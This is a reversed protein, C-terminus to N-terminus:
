FSEYLLRKIQKAMANSLPFPVGNGVLRFGHWKAKHFTMWDPYGMLRAGERVSIVRHYEYHIPRVATHSGKNERTGARLTPSLREPHLRPRRSVPEQTGPELTKLREIVHEAHTTRNSCDVSYPNWSARPLSFDRNEILEYRMRLAFDSETRTLEKASFEHEELLHPMTDIDPLDQLAERATPTRNETGNGDWSHTPEPYHFTQKLQKNIGVIFMRERDQPTGFSAANLVQPAPINYIEEAKELIHLLVPGVKKGKYEGATPANDYDNCIKVMTQHLLKSDLLLTRLQQFHERSDSEELLRYKLLYEFVSAIAITGIENRCQELIKHTLQKDNYTHGIAKSILSKLEGYSSIIVKKLELPAPLTKTLHENVNSKFDNIINSILRKRSQRDRKAVAKPVPPLKDVILSAPEGNSKALRKIHISFKPLIGSTALGPVNEMVFFEPKLELVIDMFRSTLLNREDRATREGIYSFGQCPPGGIIGAIKIGNLQKVKSLYERPNDAFKNVDDQIVLTEPFNKAYAEYAQQDNEIALSVNFGAAVFGLSLGGVGAFLDIVVPRKKYKERDIFFHLIRSEQLITKTQNAPTWFRWHFADRFKEGEQTLTWKDDNQSLLGIYEGIKLLRQIDNNDSNKLAKQSIIYLKEKHFEKGNQTLLWLAHIDKATIKLVQNKHMDM